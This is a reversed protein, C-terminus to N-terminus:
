VRGITSANLECESPTISTNPGIFMRGHLYRMTREIVVDQSVFRFYPCIRYPTRTAQRRGKQVSLRTVTAAASAAHGPFLATVNVAGRTTMTTCTAAAAAATELTGCKRKLKRRRKRRRRWRRKCGRGPIPEEEGGRGRRQGFRGSSFLTKTGGNKEELTGSQLWYSRKPPPSCWWWCSYNEGMSAFKGM